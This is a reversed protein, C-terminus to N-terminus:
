KQKGIDSQLSMTSQYLPATRDCFVDRFDSRSDAVFVIRLNEISRITLRNRLWGSFGTDKLAEIGYFWIWTPYQNEAIYHNLEVSTRFNHKYEMLDITKVSIGLSENIQNIGDIFGVSLQSRIAHHRYMHLAWTCRVYRELGVEYTSFGVDIEELKKRNM